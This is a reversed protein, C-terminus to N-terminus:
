WGVKGVCTVVITTRGGPQVVTESADWTFVPRKIMDYELEYAQPGSLEGENLISIMAKSASDEFSLKVFDVPTSSSNELTIKITSRMTLQSYFPVVRVDRWQVADSNRADSKDKKDMFATARRSGQMRAVKSIVRRERTEIWKGDVM